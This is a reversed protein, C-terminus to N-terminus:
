CLVSLPTLIETIRHRKPKGKCPIAVALILKTLARGTPDHYDYINNVDAPKETITKFKPKCFGNIDCKALVILNKLFERANKWMWNHLEM